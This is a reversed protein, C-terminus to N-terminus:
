FLGRSIWLILIRPISIRLGGIYTRSLANILEFFINSFARIIPFLNVITYERYFLNVFISYDRYIYYRLFPILMKNTGLPKLSFLTLSLKPTFVHIDLLISRTDTNLYCIQSWNWTVVTHFVPPVASMCKTCELWVLM